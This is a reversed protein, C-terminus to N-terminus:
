LHILDFEWITGSIHHCGVQNSLVQVRLNVLFSLCVHDHLLDKVMLLRSGSNCQFVSKDGGFIALSAPLHGHCFPFKLDSVPVSGGGPYEKFIQFDHIRHLNGLVRNGVLNVVLWDKYPPNVIDQLLTVLNDILDSELIPLLHVLRPDLERM